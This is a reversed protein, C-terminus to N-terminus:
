LAHTEKTSQMTEMTVTVIGSLFDKCKRYCIALVIANIVSTLFNIVTVTNSYFDMHQTLPLPINMRQKCVPQTSPIYFTKGTEMFDVAESLPFSLCLLDDVTVNRDIDQNASPSRCKRTRQTASQSVDVLKKKYSIDPAQYEPVTKYYQLTM